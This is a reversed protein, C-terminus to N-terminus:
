DFYYTGVDFEVTEDSVQLVDGLEEVRELLADDLDPYEGYMTHFGVARLHPLSSDLLDILSQMKFHLREGTHTHGLELVELALETRQYEIMSFFMDQVLDGPISLFLLNPLFAPILHICEPQLGRNYTSLTLRKLRTDLQPNSLLGTMVELSLNQCNKLCLQAMNEPWCFFDIPTEITGSLQLIELNPPWKIITSPENTIRMFQPSRFTALRKM